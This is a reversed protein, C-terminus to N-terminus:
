HWSGHRVFLVGVLQCLDPPSDPGSTCAPTRRWGFPPVVAETIELGGHSTTADGEDHATREEMATRDLTGYAPIGEAREIVSPECSIFLV